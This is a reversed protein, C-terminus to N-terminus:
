QVNELVEHEELRETHIAITNCVKLYSIKM